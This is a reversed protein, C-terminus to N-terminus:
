TNSWIRAFDPNASAHRTFIIIALLDRQHKLRASDGEPQNTSIYSALESSTVWKTNLHRQAEEATLHPHHMTTARAVMVHAFTEAGTNLRLERIVGLDQIDDLEFGVEEDIERRFTDIPSEGHESLGGPLEYTNNSASHILALRGDDRVVLGFAGQWVKTLHHLDNTTVTHKDVVTGLTSFPQM